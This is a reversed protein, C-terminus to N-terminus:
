PEIQNSVSIEYITDTENKINIKIEKSINKEYRYTIITINEDEYKEYPEGYATLVDQVGSVGYQIGKPLFFTATDGPWAFNVASVTSVMCESFSLDGGSLNYMGIYSDYSGNKMYVNTLSNNPLIDEPKADRLSWGKSAFDSYKMPLQYFEGECYFQFSYLDDSLGDPPQEAKIKSESSPNDSSSESNLENSSSPTSDQLLEAFDCGALLVILALLLALFVKKM